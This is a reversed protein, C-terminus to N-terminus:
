LFSGSRSLPKVKRENLLGTPGYGEGYGFSDGHELLFVNKCFNLPRLSEQYSNFITSVVKIVAARNKFIIILM